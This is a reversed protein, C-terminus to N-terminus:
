AHTRQRALCNPLRLLRRKRQRTTATTGNEKKRRKRGNKVSINPTYFLSSKEKKGRADM